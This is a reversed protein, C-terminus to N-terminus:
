LTMFCCKGSPRPGACMTRLSPPTTSGPRFNNFRAFIRIVLYVAIQFRCCILTSFYVANGRSRTRDLYALRAHFFEFAQLNWSRLCSRRSCADRQAMVDLEVELSSLARPNIDSLIEQAPLEDTSIGMRTSQIVSPYQVLIAWTRDQHNYMPIYIMKLHSLSAQRLARDRTKRNALQQYPQHYQSKPSRSGSEFHGIQWSNTAM